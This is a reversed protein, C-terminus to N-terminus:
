NWTSRTPPQCLPWRSRLMLMVFLLSKGVVLTLPQQRALKTSVPVQFAVRRRRHCYYQHNHSGMIQYVGLLQASDFYPLSNPVFGFIPGVVGMWGDWEIVEWVNLQDHGIMLRDRTEEITLCFYSPNIIFRGKGNGTVRWQGRTRAILNVTFYNGSIWIKM